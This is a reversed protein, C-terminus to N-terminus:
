LHVRLWLGYHSIVIKYMGIYKEYSWAYVLFTPQCQSLLVNSLRSSLEYLKEVWDKKKEFFLTLILPAIRNKKWISKCVTWLNIPKLNHKQSLICKVNLIKMWWTDNRSVITSSYIIQKTPWDHFKDLKMSVYM